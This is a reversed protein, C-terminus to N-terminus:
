LFWDLFRDHHRAIYEPMIINCSKDVAEEATM